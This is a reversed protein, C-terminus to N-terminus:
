KGKSGNLMGARFRIDEICKMGIIENIRAIIAHKEFNTLHHILVPSEVSVYLVGGKLNTIETCKCVEDGLIYQWADRVQCYIKSAANRKPLVDKLVQGIRVTKNKNFFYREPLEEKKM